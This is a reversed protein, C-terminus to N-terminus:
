PVVITDGPKLLINQEPRNGKIVEKYNFPIKVQKGNESRLIYIGKQNAFQTFGGASALAQLVTMGPLMPFAGARLVEGVIYIRRSNVQSVIVTVQPDAIFKKLKETISMALQMPTLGSAQVDNILPLSIKGDARVPVTKTLDPEKWVAINLVDEPGIVYEPDEAATAPKQAEPRAQSKAGDQAAAASWGALAVCGALLLLAAKWIGNVFRVNM